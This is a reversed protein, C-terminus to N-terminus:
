KVGAVTNLYYKRERLFVSFSKHQLVYHLPVLKVSQSHLKRSLTCWSFRICLYGSSDGAASIVLNRTSFRFSGCFRHPLLVVHEGNEYGKGSSTKLTLNM